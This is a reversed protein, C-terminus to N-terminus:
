EWVEVDDGVVVIVGVDEVVCLKLSVDGGVPDGDIVGVREKVGVPLSEAVCVGEIVVLSVGEREPVHVLESVGDCVVEIVLEALSDGVDDFDSECVTVGDPVIDPVSVLEIVELSVGVGVEVPEPVTLPLSVDVVLEVILTEGVDDREKDPVELVLADDDGDCLTLIVGVDDCEGVPVDDVVDVDDSVEVTDAM